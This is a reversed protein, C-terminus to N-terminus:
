ATMRQRVPELDEQGYDQQEPAASFASPANTANDQVNAQVSLLRDMVRRIDDNLQLTGVDSAKQRAARLPARLLEARSGQSLINTDDRDFSGDNGIASKIQTPRFAIYSYDLGNSRRALVKRALALVEQETHGVAFGIPLKTDKYKAVLPKDAGKGFYPNAVVEVFDEINRGALGRTQGEVLNRYRIGDYGNAELSKVLHQHFVAAPDAAGEQSLTGALVPRAQEETIYGSALLEKALGPASWTILDPLDVPNEIKAYLLMVQPSRRRNKAKKGEQKLRDNATRATGLHFGIDGTREFQTFDDFTGHYLVLPDGNDDIVKSRGFWAKFEPTETRACAESKTIDSIPAKALEKRTSTLSNPNAASFDSNNGIASKIQTPSVVMWTTGRSGRPADPNVENYSLGDYGLLKLIQGNTKNPWRMEAARLIEDGEKGDPLPNQISLVVPYITTQGFWEAVDPETAFWAGGDNQGMRFQNIDRSNTGHYVVMPKGEADVVKSRGFWQQFEPTHPPDHFPVSSAEDKHTDTSDMVGRAVHELFERTSVYIAKLWQTFAQMVPALEQSPARGELVYQELSEAWREHFPRKDDLSFSAWQERTVGFWNLVRDFDEVIGVPAGPQSALDALVELFFHGTEHIWTSADADPGLAIELTRPDFSGRGTSEPPSEPQAGQSQVAPELGSQFLPLGQALKARMAPTVDFGRLLLPGPASQSDGALQEMVALAQQKDTWKRAGLVNGFRYQHAGNPDASHSAQLYGGSAEDILCFRAPGGEREPVVQMVRMQRPPMPLAIDRLAPSALGPSGPVGAFEPLLRRLATPVIQDYFQELGRAARTSLLVSTTALTHTHPNRALQDALEAGIVESLMQGHLNPSSSSLRGSDHLMCRIIGAAQTRLELERLGDESRQWAKIATLPQETAFLQRASQGDVFAVRDYGGQAAMIAIRKLALHLWGQTSPLPRAELVQAQLKQARAHAELYSELVQEPQTQGDRVLAFQPTALFPAVPVGHRTSRVAQERVTWGSTDLPVKAWIPKSGHDDAIRQLAEEHTAYVAVSAGTETLVQYVGPLNQTTTGFGEQRAQQGWDSQIEHVVLVRKGQADLRDDVRFHVLVDPQSWHESRFSGRAGYRGSQEARAKAAFGSGEEDPRDETSPNDEDQVYEELAQSWRPGPTKLAFDQLAKLEAEEQPSLPRRRDLAALEARREIKRGRPTDLILLVERYGSAEGASGAGDSRASAPRAAPRPPLVHDAYRPARPDDEASVAKEIMSDIAEDWTPGHGMPTGQEDFVVFREIGCTRGFDQVGWGAPLERLTQDSLVVERVAVGEQLLYDILAQRAIRAPRTTQGAPSNTAEPQEDLWQLLGTWHVEQAKAQGKHLISAIVQQWGQVTAQQTPHELLAQLLASRLGLDPSSPGPQALSARQRGAPDAVDARDAGGLGLGLDLASQSLRNPDDADFSGDNADASKIQEPHFVAYATHKGRDLINTDYLIVGDYGMQEVKDRVDSWNRRLLQSIQRHQGYGPGPMEFDEGLISRLHAEVAEEGAVDVRLDLPRLMRLFECRVEYHKGQDAYDEAVIVDDTFFHVPRDLHQRELATLMSGYTQKVAQAHGGYIERRDASASGPGQQQKDQWATLKQGGHYVVLPKGQSDVVKSRGFWKAFATDPTDKVRADSPEKDTNDTGAKDTGASVRLAFRKYLDEPSLGARTSMTAYFAGAWRAMLECTTPEYRGTSRLMRAIQAHLADLGIPTAETRASAAPTM